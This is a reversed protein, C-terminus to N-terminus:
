LQILASRLDAVTFPKLLRPASRFTDPQSSPDSGAIVIFPVDRRALIEGVPYSPETGLWIDLIAADLRSSLAREIAEALSYAPGVMECDLESLADGLAMAIIAQDEVVLVRKGKIEM